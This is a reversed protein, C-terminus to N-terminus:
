ATRSALWGTIALVDEANPTVESKLIRNIRVQWAHVPQDREAAMFRALEAKVGPGDTATRLSERWADLRPTHALRVRATM